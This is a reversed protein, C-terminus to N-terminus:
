REPYQRMPPPSAAESPRESDSRESRVKGVVVLHCWKFRRIPFEPIGGFPLEHLTNDSEAQSQLWLYEGQIKYRRNGRVFRKAFEDQHTDYVVTLSKQVM